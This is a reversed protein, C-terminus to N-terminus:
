VLLFSDSRVRMIFDGLLTQHVRLLSHRFDTLACAQAGCAGDFYNLRNKRIQSM